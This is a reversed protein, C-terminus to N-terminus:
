RPAVLTANVGVARLAHAIAELEQLSLPRLERSPWDRELTYIQTAVPAIAAVKRAWARVHEADANGGPGGTFLAQLTVASLAALGAVIADLTIPELPRCYRQFVAETGADLKMIRADLLDLAQRVRPDGVRTSNSLVAVRASPLVRDRVACVARVVEAFAPHTTPEGNGSFTLFAPPVPLAALAAELAGRVADVSPFADDPSPPRPTWGYQCYACDFTCPKERPPLLNIGLSFGLRRSAVPGYIIGPKPTLLM